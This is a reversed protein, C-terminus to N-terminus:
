KEESVSELKDRIVFTNKAIALAVNEITVGSGELNSDVELYKVMLDKLNEANSDICNQDFDNDKICGKANYADYLRLAAEALDAKNKVWAAGAEYSTNQLKEYEARVAKVTSELGNKNYMEWMEDESYDKITMYNAIFDVLMNQADLVAKLETDKSIKSDALARKYFNTWLGATSVFFKANKEEAATVIAYKKNENYSGITKSEKTGNLVYNAYQYFDENEGTYDTTPEDVVDSSGNNATNRSDNNGGNNGSMMMVVMLITIIIVILLAVVVLIVKKPKKSGGGLKMPQPEEGPMSAIIGPKEGANFSGSNYSPNM